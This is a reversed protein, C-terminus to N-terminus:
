KGKSYDVLWSRSSQTEYYLPWPTTDDWVEEIRVGPGEITTLYRPIGTPELRAEGRRRLLEMGRQIKAQGVGADLPDTKQNFRRGFSFAPTPGDGAHSSQNATKVSATVTKPAPLAIPVPSVDSVFPEGPEPREVFTRFGGPVPMQTEAQLIAQTDPDLQLRVSPKTAGEKTVTVILRPGDPTREVGTVAFVWTEAPTWSPDQQQIPLQSCRVRWHDRVALRNRPKPPHTTVVRVASTPAVDIPQPATAGTAAALPLLCGAWLLWANPRPFALRRPM